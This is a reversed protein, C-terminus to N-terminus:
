VGAAGDVASFVAGAAGAVGAAGDVGEDVDAGAVRPCPLSGRGKGKVKELGFGEFKEYRRLLGSTM